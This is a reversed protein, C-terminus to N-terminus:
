HTIPRGKEDLLPVGYDLLIQTIEAQKKRILGNITRKWEPENYRVGMTIRFDLRLHSEAVQLPLVALPPSERKAFFGAIPGWVIGVDVEGTAVDHVLRRAPSDFRTDVVLPYSRLHGLLGKQALITAPPTGAVIGISAEQLVPDDISAPAKASGPRYVMSYVSRYYPNTNQLLENGSVTGIILDCARANLTNRIFGVSDPFWTYRIAVGLEAALLGAIKNEFGEGKDNSFPLNNPDACVRLAARDVAEATQAIAPPALAMAAAAAVIPGRVVAALREVLLPRFGPM